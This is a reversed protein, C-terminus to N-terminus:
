LMNNKETFSYALLTSSSSGVKRGKEDYIEANAVVKIHRLKVQDSVKTDVRQKVDVYTHANSLCRWGM